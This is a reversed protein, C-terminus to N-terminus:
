GKTLGLRGWGRPGKVLTFGKVLGSGKSEPDKPPDRSDKPNKVEGSFESHDRPRAIVRRGESGSGRGKGTGERFGHEMVTEPVQTERPRHREDNRRPNSSSTDEQVVVRKVGPTEKEDKTIRPNESGKASDVSSPPLGPSFSLPPGMPGLADLMGGGTKASSGAKGHKGTEDDLLQQMMDDACGAASKARVADAARHQVSPTRGREM